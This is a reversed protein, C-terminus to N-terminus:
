PARRSDNLGWDYDFFDVRASPGHQELWSRESEPAFPTLSALVAGAGGFDEAFWDFIRSLWVRGAKRDVALGKRSDALFRRMAADLQADVAPARFAERLLSPCSTSACVIAAHIRPDGMPRLIEHEIEHLSLTRGGVRGADIRWVPTLWGGRDRISELPYGALVVDIALVNYANIWFALKAERSVLHTPDSAALSAVVHRWDPASRLATYDVRTGATDAAASTHRALIETYRAEDFAAASGAAVFSVLAALCPKWM